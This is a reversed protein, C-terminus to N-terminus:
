INMCCIFQMILHALWSFCLVWNCGLYPIITSKIDGSRSILKIKSRVIRNSLLKHSMESDSNEPACLSFERSPPLGPSLHVEMYHHGGSENLGLETAELLDRGKEYFSTVEQGALTFALHRHSTVHVISLGVPLQLCLCFSGSRGLNASLLTGHLGAVTPGWGWACPGRRPHPKQAQGKSVRLLSKELERTQSDAFEGM